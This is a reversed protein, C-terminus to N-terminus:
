EQTLKAAEHSGPHADRQLDPTQGFSPFHLFHSSLNTLRSLQTTVPQVMVAPGFMYAGRKREAVAIHDSPFDVYVARIFPLGPDLWANLASSYTYPLMRSRLQMAERMAQFYQYPYEWARHDFRM